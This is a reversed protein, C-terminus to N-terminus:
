RGVKIYSFRTDVHGDVEIDPFDDIGVDSALREGEYADRLIRECREISDRLSLDTLIIGVQNKPGRGNSSSASNTGNLREHEHSASLAIHHEVLVRRSIRSILMRRMFSDLQDPSLHKSSLSLGLALM